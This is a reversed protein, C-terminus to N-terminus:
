FELHVFAVFCRYKCVRYNEEEEEPLFFHLSVLQSQESRRRGLTSCPVWLGGHCGPFQSDGVGRVVRGETRARRRRISRTTPDIQVISPITCQNVLVCRYGFYMRCVGAEQSLFPSRRLRESLDALRALHQTHWPAAAGVQVGGGSSSRWPPGGERPSPWKPRKPMFRRRRFAALQNPQQLRPVLVCVVRKRPYSVFGGLDSGCDAVAGQVAHALRRRNCGIKTRLLFVRVCERRARLWRISRTPPAM